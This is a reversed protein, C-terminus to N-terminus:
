DEHEEKNLWDGIGQSVIVLGDWLGNNSDCKNQHQSRCEEGVGDSNVHDKPCKYTAQDDGLITWECTLDWIQEWNM